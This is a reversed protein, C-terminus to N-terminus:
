ANCRTCADVTYLLCDAIVEASDMRLSPPIRHAFSSVTAKVFTGTGVVVDDASAGVVYDDAAFRGTSKYFAFDTRQEGSVGKKAYLSQRPRLPSCITYVRYMCETCRMFNPYNM